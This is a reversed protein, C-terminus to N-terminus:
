NENNLHKDLNCTIRKLVRLSDHLLMEVTRSNDREDQLQRERGHIVQKQKRVEHILQLVCTRISLPLEKIQQEIARLEFDNM